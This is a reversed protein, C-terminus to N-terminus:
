LNSDWIISSPSLPVLAHVVQRLNSRLLARGATSDPRGVQKAMVGGTIIYLAISLYSHCGSVPLSLRRVLGIATYCYEENRVTAASHM